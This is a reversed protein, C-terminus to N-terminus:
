NLHLRELNRFILLFTELMISDLHELFCVIKIIIM